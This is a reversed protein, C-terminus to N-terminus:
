RRGPVGLPLWPRRQELHCSGTARLQSRLGLCLWRRSAPLGGQRRRFARLQRPGWTTLPVLPALTEPWLCLPHRLQSLARRGWAAGAPCLRPHQLHPALAPIAGSAVPPPLGHHPQPPGRLASCYGATRRGAVELAPAMCAGPIRPPGPGLPPGLHLCRLAWASAHPRRTLSLSWKTAPRTFPRRMLPTPSSVGRRCAAAAPVRASSPVAARPGLRETAGLATPPRTIGPPATEGPTPTTRWRPRRTPRPPSPPSASAQVSWCEAAGRM